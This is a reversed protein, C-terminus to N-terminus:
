TEEWGPHDKRTPSLLRSGALGAAAGALAGIWQDLPLENAAEWGTLALAGAGLVTMVTFAAHQLRHDVAERRAREERAIIITGCVSCIVNAHEPPVPVCAVRPYRPIKVRGGRM